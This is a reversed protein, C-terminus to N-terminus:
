DLIFAASESAYRIPYPPPPSDICASSSYSSHPDSHGFLCFFVFLGFQTISDCKERIKIHSRVSICQCLSCNWDYYNKNQVYKYWTTYWSDHSEHFQFQLESNAAEALRGAGGFIRSSAVLLVRSVAGFSTGGLLIRMRACLGDGM